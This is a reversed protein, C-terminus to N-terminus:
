TSGKATSRHQGAAPQPSQLIFTSPSPVSDTQVQATVPYCQRANTYTAVIGLLCGSRLFNLFVLCGLGLTTCYLPSSLVSTSILNSFTFLNSFFFHGGRPIPIKLMALANSILPFIPLRLHNVASPSCKETLPTACYRM